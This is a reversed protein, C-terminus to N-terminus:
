VRYKERYQGPTIGESKKFIRVLYSAQYSLQEAIEGVKLDTTVLMEKCRNLRVTTVYDIFNVGMVQKFAKSLKYPSIQYEDAYYELSYDHMYASHIRDVVQDVIDKTSTNYHTSIAEIYPKIIRVEFWKVMQDPKRIQMFEEYVHVGEYLSYPNMGSKLITDHISGLLKMMGQHIYLHTGISAQLAAIYREIQQMAEVQQGMRLSQVIDREIEFPFQVAQEGNPILDKVALIQHSVNMDRYRWTKQTEDVLDPLEAFVETMNSVVITTNSRLLERIVRNMEEALELLLQDHEEMSCDANLVIMAGITSDQYDTVNVYVARQLCLEEVINSAGFNILQETHSAFQQDADTMGHIQIFLYAFRKSTIDWELQQMRSIFDEERWHKFNGHKFQLLFSARLAPIADHIQNRLVQREDLSLKWQKEIFQIEDEDWETDPEGKSPQFIALLRSLPNYIRKSAFWALLLAVTLGISSIILITRTIDTVPQLIRNVPTASAYVWENGFRQLKGYSVSYNMKQDQYIFSNRDLNQQMIQKFIPETMNMDQNENYRNTLSTAAQGKQNMLFSIGTGTTKKQVLKDLTSQDIYILFMGYPSQTVSQSLKIVLMHSNFNTNKLNQMPYMWFLKRPEALLANYIDLESENVISNVGYEDSILKRPEKLYLSVHHILPNANRLLSLSRFLENTQVFQQPFDLQSITEDFGPNFGLQASFLELQSLYDDFHQITENVQLQHSHNLESVIQKSGTYYIGISILAIPLCTIFLVLMLSNRYFSGRRSSQKM